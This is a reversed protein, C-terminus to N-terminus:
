IGLLRNKPTGGDFSLGCDIIRQQPTGGNIKTLTVVRLYPTEGDCNFYMSSYLSEAHTLYSQINNLIEKSIVTEVWETGNYYKLTGSNATDIWLLNINSPSSDDVYYGKSMAIGNSVATQVFATTAIQTTNTGIPATPAKPTGTLISNDLPAKLSESLYEKIEQDYISLGSNTLVQTKM